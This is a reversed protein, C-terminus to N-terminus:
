WYKCVCVFNEEGVVFIFWKLLGVYFFFNDFGKLFGIYFYVDVNSGGLELFEVSVMNKVFFGISM